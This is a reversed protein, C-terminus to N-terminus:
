RLSSWEEHFKDVFGVIMQFVKSPLLSALAYKADAPRVAGFGLAARFLIRASILDRRWLCEYAATLVPENVLARL